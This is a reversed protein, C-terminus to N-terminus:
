KEGPKLDFQATIPNEFFPPGINQISFNTDPPKIIKLTFNYKTSMAGDVLDFTILYSSTVVDISPM